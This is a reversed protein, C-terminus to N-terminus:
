YYFISLLMGNSTPAVRRSKRGSKGVGLVDGPNRLLLYAVGECSKLVELQLIAKRADKDLETENRIWERLSM